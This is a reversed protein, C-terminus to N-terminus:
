EDQNGKMLWDIQHKYLEWDSRIESLRQLGNPTLQYYRRNRGQFPKDYTTLWGQKKLRRLVPYLTSESIPITQQVLQTIAYGYYDEQSLIALVCGDLLETNIPIAM